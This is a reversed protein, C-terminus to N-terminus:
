FHLISQSIFIEKQPLSLLDITEKPLLGEQGAGSSM